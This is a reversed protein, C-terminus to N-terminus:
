RRSAVIRAVEQFKLHSHEFFRYYAECFRNKERSVETTPECNRRCGNRCLAFWKCVQCDEPVYLSQQIFQLEERKEHLTEVSDTALNGLHWEDLTYFDCPYASGDAEVVFYTGCFGVMACSEVPNKLYMGIVNDFYRVSVYFGSKFDEYWVDFLDILFKEYDAVTLYFEGNETQDDQELPELCEIYQQYYLENKKFFEYTKKINRAIDKHIVTLINFPVDYKKMLDICQMIPTFTEGNTGSIRYKNHTKKRGDLSIGILFNHKKFFAIWEENVRYGNTQLSFSVTVHNVNLEEVFVMLKEYFPLGVLTPEGGQFAIAVSETAYQFTKELIRYLTDETMFNLANFSRHQMEDVYFCYTCKMNCHGSAPKILLTVNRRDTDM